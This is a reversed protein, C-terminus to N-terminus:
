YQENYLLVLSGGSLSSGVNASVSLGVNDLWSVSDGVEFLWGVGFEYYNHTDFTDTTDGGLEVRRALLRLRNPTEWLPSLPWFYVIGNSWSWTEPRAEQGGGVTRGRYYSYTSQFEWPFDSAQSAYMLRTQIEGVLARSDSGAFAGAGPIQVPMDDEQQRSRYQLFHVGTGIRLKWHDDILYSWDSALYGGYVYNKNRTSTPNELDHAIVDEEFKLYSVRAKLHTQLRADDESQQWRAPLAYTRISQRREISGESGYEDGSLPVLSDLDFARVGFTVTESDTLILSSALISELRSQQEADADATADTQAWGSPCALTAALLWCGHTKRM